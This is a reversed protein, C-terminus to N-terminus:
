AIFRSRWHHIGQNVSSNNKLTENTVFELFGALVSSNRFGPSVLIRNLQERISEEPFNEDSVM